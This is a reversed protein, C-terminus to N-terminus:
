IAMRMKVLLVAVWLGLDVFSMMPLRFMLQQFLSPQFEGMMEVKRVGVAGMGAGGMEQFEFLLVFSM